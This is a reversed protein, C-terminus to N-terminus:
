SNFVTVNSKLPADLVDNRVNHEKLGKIKGKLIYYENSFFM